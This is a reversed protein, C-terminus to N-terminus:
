YQRLSQQCRIANSGDPDCTDSPCYLYGGTNYYYGTTHNEIDKGSEQYLLNKTVQLTVCFGRYYIHRFLFLWRHSLHSEM